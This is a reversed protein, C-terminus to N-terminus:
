SCGLIWGRSLSGHPVLVRGLTDSHVSASKFLIRSGRSQLFRASVSLVKSLFRCLYIYFSARLHHHLSSLSQVTGQSRSFSIRGQSLNHVALSAQAVWSSRSRRRGAAEM